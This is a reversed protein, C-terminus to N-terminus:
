SSTWPMYPTDTDRSPTWLSDDTGEDIGEDPRDDTGDDNGDDTGEAGEDSGYYICDRM